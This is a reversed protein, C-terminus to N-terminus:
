HYLFQGVSADLGVGLRKGGVVWETYLGFAVGWEQSPKSVSQSSGFGTQGVEFSKNKKSSFFCQLDRARAVSALDCGM